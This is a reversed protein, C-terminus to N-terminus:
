DALATALAVLALDRPHPASEVRAWGHGAAGAVAPAIAALRIAARDVPAVLEALRQAARASHLMTVTGNLASTDIDVLPDAAYVTIATVGPQTARERGALHLLRIGPPLSAILAAADGSGVKAVTLGAARAAAATAAGVSHVPLHALRTLGPGALRAANASTLLLADFGTLNAPPTWPVPAIAFLPLSIARGGAAVIAACTAANGPEPRLVAVPRSM